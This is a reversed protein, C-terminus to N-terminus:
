RIPSPHADPEPERQEVREREQSGAEHQQHDREEGRRGAPRNAGGPRGDGGVRDAIGEPRPRLEGDAHRHQRDQRDPEAPQQRGPQEARDARDGGGRLVDRRAVQAPPQPQAAAVVLEGPEAPREVVQEGPQVRRELRLPAEHRVRRVLQPRRQRGLPGQELHRERVRVGVRRRQALRALLHKGEPLPGLAEDVRQQGQRGAFPADVPPLRAVEGAEGAAGHPREAICRRSSVRSSCAATVPSGRSISLRIAL